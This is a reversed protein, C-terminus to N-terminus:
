LEDGMNEIVNELLSDLETIQKSDLKKTITDAIREYIRNDGEIIQLAKDTLKLYYIRKDEKSQVKTILESRSLRKVLASIAPKTLKLKDAAESMKPNKLEHIMTLYYYDNMNFNSIEAESLANKINKISKEWMYNAIVAIKEELM